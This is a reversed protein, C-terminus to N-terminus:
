VLSGTLHLALLKADSAPQNIGNVLAQWRTTNFPLGPLKSIAGWGHAILASKNAQLWALYDVANMQVHGAEPVNIEAPADTNFQHYAVVQGTKVDLDCDFTVYM